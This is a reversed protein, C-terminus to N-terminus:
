FVPEQVRVSIAGIISSRIDSAEFDKKFFERIAKVVAERFAGLHTGGMTTFQGNVFSYYEEGYENGHTLALEIDDGKLHIIPYRLNEPDTKHTLLDLLGNESYYKQNNFNITLGANLYVYNWIQNELYEPIFHYNKFITNDPEFIVLTGNRGSSNAVPADNTLVGKEFEAVKTQGDRFAQVKFYSSLANVAK